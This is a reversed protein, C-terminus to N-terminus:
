APSFFEAAATPKLLRAHMFLLLGLVLCSYVLIFATHVHDYSLSLSLTGISILYSDCLRAISAGITRNSIFLTDASSCSPSIEM